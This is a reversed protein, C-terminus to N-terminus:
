RCTLSLRSILDGITSDYFSLNTVLKLGDTSNAENLDTCSVPSGTSTFPGVSGPGVGENANIIENTHSGSTLAGCLPPLRVIVGTNNCPASAEVRIATPLRGQLTGAPSAAGFGEDICQCHCQDPAPDNDKGECSGNPCDNVGAVGGICTAATALDCICALNARDGGQCFSECASNFVVKGLGACTGACSSACDANDTCVSEEHDAIQDINLANGGDCDVEGSPCSAVPPEVCVFGIGIINVPDFQTISLDCTEKGMGGPPGTCSVNIAGSPNLSFPCGGSLCITLNSDDYGGNFRCNDCPIGSIATCDANGGTMANLALCASCEAQDILCDGLADGDNASACLGDETGPAPSSFACKGNADDKIKQGRKATGAAIGSAICGELDGIANISGLDKACARFAKFHETLLAGPRQTLKDQCKSGDLGDVPNGFAARVIDDASKLGATIIGDVSANVGFAPLTACKANYASTLSAAKAGAKPRVGDVCVTQDGTKDKVCDKRNGKAEQQVMGRTKNYVQDLCKRAPGDLQASASSAAGLLMGSACAVSLFTTFKMRNGGEKEPKKPEGAGKGHSGTTTVFDM